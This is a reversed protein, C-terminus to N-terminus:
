IIKNKKSNKLWNKNTQFSHLINVDTIKTNNYTMSKLTTDLTSTPPVKGWSPSHDLNQNMTNFELLKSNSHQQDLSFTSKVCIKINIWIPFFNYNYDFFFLLFSAQFIKQIVMSYARLNQFKHTFTRIKNRKKSTQVPVTQSLM